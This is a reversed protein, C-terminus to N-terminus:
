PEAAAGDGGGRFALAAYSVTHEWDGTLRGSTDYDVLKAVAGPPVLRMALGIAHRGCVTAGTSRCYDEFGRVDNAEVRRAAGLDLERLNEEIRTEFPVYRFRPGYHTFDSSAVVLARPGLLPRLAGAVRDAVAGEVDHGTLVPVIRFSGALAQQLFPIEAELSHERAFPADSRRFGPEGALAAVAEVDIGVEGLPTRWAGALPVAAGAFYAYHSPGLLVVRDVERGAVQRFASAAVAGSYVFGAHPAVLALVSGSAGSQPTAAALLGGVERALAGRDAPYWMGAVNPGITASM